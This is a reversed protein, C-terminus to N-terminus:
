YQGFLELCALEKTNRVYLKGAALAPVTICRGDLIEAVAKEKYGTPVAEVLALKGKDGLPIRWLIKPGTAPWSKLLGTEASIGNRNPGLWQPWDSASSAAQQSKSDASKHTFSWGFSLLAICPLSCAFLFRRKM